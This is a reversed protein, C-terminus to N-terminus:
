RNGQAKDSGGKRDQTKMQQQNVQKREELLENIGYYNNLGCQQKKRLEQEYRLRFNKGRQM